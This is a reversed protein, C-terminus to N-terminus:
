PRRLQGLRECVLARVLQPAIPVPHDEFTPLSPHMDIIHLGGLRGGLTRCYIDGYLNLQVTATSAHCKPMNAVVTGPLGREGFNSCTTYEARRKYDFVHVLGTNGDIAVLDITGCMRLRPDYVCQERAVPTMGLGLLYRLLAHVHEDRAVIDDEPGRHHGGAHGCERPPPVSFDCEYPGARGLLLEMASHMQTGLCSAATKNDDWARKIQANTMGPYRASKTQPRMKRLAADADFTPFLSDAFATVSVFPGVESDGTTLDVVDYVHPDAHLTIEWRGFEVVRDSPGDIVIMRRRTAPTADEDGYWESSPGGDRKRDDAMDATQARATRITTM